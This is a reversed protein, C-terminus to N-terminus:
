DMALRNPSDSSFNGIFRCLWPLIDEALMGTCAQGETLREVTIFEAKPYYAHIADEVGDTKHFTRDVYIVNSGDAAVGPLDATACVVM